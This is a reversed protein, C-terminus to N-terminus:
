YAGHHHASAIEGWALGQPWAGERETPGVAVGVVATVSSWCCCAVAVCQQRYAAKELM